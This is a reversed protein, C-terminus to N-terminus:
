VLGSKNFSLYYYKLAEYHIDATFYKNVRERAKAGFIKVQAPQEIYNIMLDTFSTVNGFEALSGTENDIISDTLGPIKTGIAPIGLAAADIVISGFGERHSPLCLVNSVNLYLEPDSVSGIEIVGAFLEPTKFKLESIVGDEDPGVFLLRSHNYKNYTDHFAYLMDVAGKDVTKRAIYAFIFNNANINLSLKLKNSDMLLIECNFRTVDVGSLSGKILVPLPKGKSCIGNKYLYNSQSHSDALCETNLANVLWDFRRLVYKSLGSKTAWVQGTFTHLRVPVRCIFGALAAVLSAKPMLSHVIDPKFNLIIKILSAVALIDSTLSIKRAIKLNIFTINPYQDAFQTVNQGVVLVDFDLGIRSLTNPMHYKVAYPDTVVRIIRLKM